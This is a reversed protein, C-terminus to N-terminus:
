CLSDAKIAKEPSSNILKFLQEPKYGSQQKEALLHCDDCLSIGNEKVYGGNLFTHRDLIHHADLYCKPEIKHYKKWDDGGQRDKGPVQCKRCCYRDRDFVTERFNRRIEKKNSM